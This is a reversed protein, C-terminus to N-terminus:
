VKVHCMDSSSQTWKHLCLGLFFDLNASFCVDERIFVGLHDSNTVSVVCIFSFSTEKIRKDELESCSVLLLKFFLDTFFVRKLKILLDSPLDRHSEELSWEWTTMRICEHHRCRCCLLLHSHFPFVLILPLLFVRASLHYTLWCCCINIEHISLYVFLM